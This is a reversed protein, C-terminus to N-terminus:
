PIWVFRGKSTVRHFHGVSSVMPSLEVSDRLVEPATELLFWPRCYPKWRRWKDHFDTWQSSEQQITVRWYQLRNENHKNKCTGARTGHHSDSEEDDYLNSPVKKKGTQFSFLTGNVLWWKRGATLSLILFQQKHFRRKRRRRGSIGVVVAMRSGSLFSQFIQNIRPDDLVGLRASCVLAAGHPGWM